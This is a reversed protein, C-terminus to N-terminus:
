VATNIPARNSIRKSSLPLFTIKTGTYYKNEDDKNSNGVEKLPIRVTGDEFKM